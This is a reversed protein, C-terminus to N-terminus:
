DQTFYGINVIIAASTSDSLLVNVKFNACITLLKM